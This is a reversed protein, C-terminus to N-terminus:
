LYNQDHCLYSWLFSSIFGMRNDFSRLSELYDALDWGELFGKIFVHHHSHHHHHYHSHHHHHDHHRHVPLVRIDIFASHFGNDTLKRDKIHFGGCLQRGRLIVAMMITLLILLKPVRQAGVEPRKVEDKAVKPREPRKVWVFSIPHHTLTLTLYYKPM